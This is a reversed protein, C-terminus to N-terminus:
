SLVGRLFAVVPVAIGGVLLALALGTAFLDSATMAEGALVAHRM